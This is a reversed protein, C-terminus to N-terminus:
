YPVMAMTGSLTGSKQEGCGFVTAGCPRNLRQFGLRYDVGYGPQQSILLLYTGTMEATSTISPNLGYASTVPRGSPDFLEVNSSTARIAMVDGANASVSYPVMAITGSLTGSMQDGCGFITAGCPRNLRQFVVRYDAGYGPQQSMLLLYNGTVESKSTIAPNLGRASAVLRGSPDYLEMSSSTARVAMVDGANAGVLYRDIQTANSFQGTAQTGCQLVSQAFSASSFIVLAFLSLKM